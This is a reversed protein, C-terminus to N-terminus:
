PPATLEDSGCPSGIHRLLDIPTQTRTHFYTRVAKEKKLASNWNWPILMTLSMFAEQGHLRSLHFPEINGTLNM